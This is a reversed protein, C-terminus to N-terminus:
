MGHPFISTSLNSASGNNISVMALVDGNKPDIIILDGGKANTTNIAEALNNRGIQQMDADLTLQVQGGIGPHELIVKQGPIAGGVDRSVIAQGDTGVLASNFFQEIGGRGIGDITKGLVGSVLDGQPYYRSYIKELHVGPIDMLDDRVSPQFSGPFTRWKRDSKTYGAVLKVDLALAESLGETVMSLNNIEAPAVSVRYRERSVGLEIGNRDLIAGRTGPIREPQRQQAMAKQKLTTGLVLQIHAARGIIVVSAMLWFAFIIRRRTVLMRKFAPKPRKM